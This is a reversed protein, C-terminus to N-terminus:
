RMVYYENAPYTQKGLNHKRSKKIAFGESNEPSLCNDIGHMHM